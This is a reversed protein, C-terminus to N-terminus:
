RRPAKQNGGTSRPSAAEFLRNFVGSNESILEDVFYRDAAMDPHYRELALAVTRHVMRLPPVETLKGALLQPFVDPFADELDALVSMGLWLKFPQGGVQLTLLGMAHATM